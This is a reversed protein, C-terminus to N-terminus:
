LLGREEKRGRFFFFCHLGDKRGERSFVVFLCDKRRFIFSYVVGEFFFM